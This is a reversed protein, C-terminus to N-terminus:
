QWCVREGWSPYTSDASEACSFPVVRDGVRGYMVESFPQDLQFIVLSVATCDAILRDSLTNMLRPSNMVSPAATGSLRLIAAQPATAPYGESYGWDALAYDTAVVEATRGTEIDSIMQSLSAACDRSLSFDTPEAQAIATPM